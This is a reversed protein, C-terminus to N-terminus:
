DSAPNHAASEETSTPKRLLSRAAIFALIPMVIVLRWNHKFATAVDGHVLHFFARTMGCGPCEHGTINRIICCSAGNDISSLPVLWLMAMGLVLVPIFLRPM